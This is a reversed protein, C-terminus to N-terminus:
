HAPLGVYRLDSRKFSAFHPMQRFYERWMQDAFVSAHDALETTPCFGDAFDMVRFISVPNSNRPAGM